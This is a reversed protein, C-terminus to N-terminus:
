IWFSIEYNDGVAALGGTISFRVLYGDFTTGTCLKRIVRVNFTPSAVTTAFHRRTPASYEYTKCQKKINMTYVHGAVLGTLVHTSGSTSPVYAADDVSVFFSYSSEADFSLTAGTGTISGVTVNQPTLCGAGIAEKWIIDSKGGGACTKQLGAVYDGDPLGKFIVQGSIVLQTYSPLVGGDTIVNDSRKVIVTYSDSPSYNQINVIIDKCAM